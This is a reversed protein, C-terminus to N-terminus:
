CFINEDHLYRPLRKGLFTLPSNNQFIGELQVSFKDVGSILLLLLKDVTQQRYVKLHKMHAFLLWDFVTSKSDDTNIFYSM